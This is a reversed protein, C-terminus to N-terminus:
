VAAERGSGRCGRPRCRACGHDRVMEPTGPALDKVIMSRGLGRNAIITTSKLPLAVVIWWSWRDRCEFFGRAVTWLASRPILPTRCGGTM